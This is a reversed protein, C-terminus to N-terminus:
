LLDCGPAMRHARRGAAIHTPHISSNRLPPTRHPNCVDGIHTSPITACGDTTTVITVIMVDVRTRSTRSSPM